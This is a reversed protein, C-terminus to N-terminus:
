PAPCTAGNNYVYGVARCNEQACATCTVCRILCVYLTYDVGAHLYYSGCPSDEPHSCDTSSCGVHDNARWTPGEYLNMTARCSTCKGDACIVKACVYFDGDCPVKFHVSDCNTISMVDDTDHCPRSELRVCYHCDPSDPGGQSFGSLGMLLSAVLGLLVMVMRTFANM